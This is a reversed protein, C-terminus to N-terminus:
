SSSRALLQVLKKMVFGQDPCIDVKVGHKELSLAAIPGVAAIRTRALGAKLEAELGREQAVEFLRDVQPSSTVVFSDVSGAAMKQILDAVKEADASPTYVYPQVTAVSANAAELAAVLPPNEVGHLVVGVSVGALSEKAMTVILGETTPASAVITPKVDIERLAAAPKPGRIVTKTGALAAITADRLGASEAVSLLRRVGEGTMIVVYTFEGTILRRLWDIVPKPDPVDIIGVMPIRLPTAGEKVLLAALEELQRTEALAVVRGELPLAM